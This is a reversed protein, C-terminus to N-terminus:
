RVLTDHELRFHHTQSWGLAPSILLQVSGRQPVDNSITFDRVAHSGNLVKWFWGDRAGLRLEGRPQWGHATHMFAAVRVTATPAAGSSTREATLEIRFDHETASVIVSRAPTAPAAAAHAAAGHSTLIVAALAPTAVALTAARTLRRSIM